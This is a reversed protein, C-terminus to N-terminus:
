CVKEIMTSLFREAMAATAKDMETSDLCIKDIANETFDLVEFSATVVKM